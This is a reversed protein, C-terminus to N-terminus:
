QLPAEIPAGYVPANAPHGVMAALSTCDLETPASCIRFDPRIDLKGQKERDAVPNTLTGDECCRADCAPTRVIAALTELLGAGCAVGVQATRGPAPAPTGAKCTFHTGFVRPSKPEGEVPFICHLEGLGTPRPVGSAVFEVGLHFHCAVDTSWTCDGKENVSGADATVQALPVTAEVASCANMADLFGPSLQQMMPGSRPPAVIAGTMHQGICLARWDDAGPEVTPPTSATSSGHCGVVLSLFVAIWLPMM